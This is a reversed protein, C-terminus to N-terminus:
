FLRNQEIEEKFEELTGENLLVTWKGNQPEAFLKQQLRMRKKLTQAPLAGKQILRGLRIDESAQIWYLVDFWPEIAWHAILAADLICAPASCESVEKYLLDLLKPHVIGNLTVLNKFSGFVAEGLAGFVVAGEAVVAKGFNRVLGERIDADGNMLNKAIQDADIIMCGTRALMKACTSKGCGM